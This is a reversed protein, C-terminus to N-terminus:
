RRRSRRKSSKKSKRTRRKKAKRNGGVLEGQSQNPEEQAKQPEELPEESPEEHPEERPEERPEELPEEQPPKASADYEPIEDINAEEYDNDTADEVADKDNASEGGKKMNKCIPCKCFAKHGNGKKLHKTKKRKTKRGAIQFNASDDDNSIRIRRKSHKKSKSSAKHKNTKKGAIQPTEDENMDADVDGGRKAHKMNICIPCSCSYKHGNTRRKEEPQEKQREKTM